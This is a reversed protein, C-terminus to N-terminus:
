RDDLETILEKPARLRYADEVIAAIEVWDVALDGDTDLYVAIWDGFVGSASPAPAFFRDPEAAVLDERVGEPAPCWLSVRDDGAFDADHFRCIPRQDRVFFCPAGHSLRENVGPLGLAIGRVHELEHAM